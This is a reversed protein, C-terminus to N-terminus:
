FRQAPSRNRGSIWYRNSKIDIREVLYQIRVQAALHRAAFTAACKFSRDEYIEGKSDLTAPIYVSQHLLDPLGSERAATMRRFAFLVRSIITAGMRAVRPPNDAIRFNNLNSGPLRSLDQLSRAVKIEPRYVEMDSVIGLRPPFQNGSPGANIQVSRCSEM